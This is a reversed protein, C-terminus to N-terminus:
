RFDSEETRKIAMLELIRTPLKTYIQAEGNFLLSFVFVTDGYLATQTVSHKM